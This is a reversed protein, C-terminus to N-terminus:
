GTLKSPSSITGESGSVVFAQHLGGFCSRIVFKGQKQGVYKRVMLKEHLNWMHIEQSSLNVLAHKDDASLCLSTISETEQISGLEKMDELDYIRIKKEHCVAVLFKGDKTVALDTTRVGFFTHIVEGNTNKDTNASQLKHSVYGFTFTSTSAAPFSAVM